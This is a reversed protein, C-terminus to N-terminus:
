TPPASYSRYSFPLFPSRHLPSYSAFAPLLRATLLLAHATCLWPCGHNGHMRVPASACLPCLRRRGEERGGKSGLRDLIGGRGGMAAGGCTFRRALGGGAAGYLVRREEGRREEERLLLCAPLCAAGGCRARWAFGCVEAFAFPWFWQLSALSLM